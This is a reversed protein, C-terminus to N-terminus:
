WSTSVPRGFWCRAMFTRAPIRASLRVPEDYGDSHIENDFVGRPLRAIQVRQAVFGAFLTGLSKFFDGREQPEDLRKAM